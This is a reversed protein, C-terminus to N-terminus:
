PASEQHPVLLCLRQPAIRFELPLRLQTIEGDMAVKVRRGRPLRLSVTMRQFPFTVVNEAEGLRGVAGRILLGFMAMRSMPRLAIAALQGQRVAEAEAIGVQDLQLPNNGIFLTPTRLVQTQGDHEIQVVWRRHDRLLAMASSWLAVFRNRGFQQKYAEREELVKPYLGFSANVLFVRDNVLGVQTPQPAAELLARTAAEADAPIGHARGFYNFTGQPVVGFRLGSPLVQQAVANLTGDGGAAVVIGGSSQAQAVAAAAIRPLDGPKEVRFVQHPRGAESLVRRIDAEAQNKDGHGSGANLVVFVTGSESM